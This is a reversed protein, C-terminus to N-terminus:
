HQSITRTISFSVAIPSQDRTFGIELDGYYEWTININPFLVQSLRRPGIVSTCKLVKGKVEQVLLCMGNVMHNTINLNRLLLVPFGPKLDIIHLSFGPSNIGNSIDEPVSQM